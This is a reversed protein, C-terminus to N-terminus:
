IRKRINISEEQNDLKNLIEKKEVSIKMIKFFDDKENEQKESMVPKIKKCETEIEIIDKVSAIKPSIENLIEISGTYVM